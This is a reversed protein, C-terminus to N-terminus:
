LIVTNVNGSNPNNFNSQARVYYLKGSVTKITKPDKGEETVTVETDPAVIYYCYELSKLEVGDVEVKKSGGAEEFVIFCYNGDQTLTFCQVASRPAYSFMESINRCGLSKCTPFIDEMSEGWTLKVNYKLAAGEVGNQMETLAQEILKKKQEDLNEWAFQLVEFTGDKNVCKATTHITETKGDTGKVDFSLSLEDNIEFKLAKKGNGGLGEVTMKSLSSEFNVKLYFVKKETAKEAEITTNNEVANDDDKSCSTSLLVAVVGPLIKLLPRKM